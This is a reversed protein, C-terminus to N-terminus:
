IFPVNTTLPDFLSYAVFFLCLLMQVSGVLQLQISYSILIFVKADHSSRGGFSENMKM